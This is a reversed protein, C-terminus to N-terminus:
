SSFLFFFYQKGRNYLINQLNNIGKQLKTIREDLMVPLDSWRSALDQLEDRVADVHSAKPTSSTAMKALWSQGTTTVYEFSQRQEPITTQLEQLRTLQKAMTEPVGDATLLANEARHVWDMVETFVERYRSPLELPPSAASLEAQRAALRFYNLLNSM